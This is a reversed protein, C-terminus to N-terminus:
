PFLLLLLWAAGGGVVVAGGVKLSTGWSSLVSNEPNAGLLVDAAVAVAGAAAAAILITKMSGSM